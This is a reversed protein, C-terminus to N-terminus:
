KVILRNWAVNSQRNGAADTAYVFFRYSGKAFDCHFATQYLVGRHVRGSTHRHLVVGLANKVVIHVTCWGASPPPDDVEYSLHAIAGTRVSSAVPFDGTAVSPPLAVTGVVDFSLAPLDVITDPITALDQDLLYSYGAIASAAGVGRWSFTPNPNAYWKSPAPHDVSALGSVPLPDGFAAQTAGAALALTALCLFLATLTVRRVPRNM